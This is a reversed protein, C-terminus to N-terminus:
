ASKRRRERQWNREYERRCTLCCRGGRANVRVNDPTMPHGRRCLENPQRRNEPPIRSNNVAATVPDLHWPNVCSPNRCLHDLHLGDPIPGIFFEYAWRHAAWTRGDGGIFNGYGDPRQAGVWRWCDGDEVVRAFFRDDEPMGRPYYPRLPRLAKGQAVLSYHGSCLGKAMMPRNCDPGTCTRKSM